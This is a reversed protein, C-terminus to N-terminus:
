TTGGPCQPRPGAEVGELDIVLREPNSLTFYKHGVPQAAELTIRTYDPSPWLRTASLQLAQGLGSTLAFCLLSIEAPVQLMGGSLTRRAAQPRANSKVSGDDVIRLHIVV